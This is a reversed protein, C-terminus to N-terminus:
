LQQGPEEDPFLLIEEEGLQLLIQGVAGAPDPEWDAFRRLERAGYLIQPALEDTARRFEAEIEAAADSFAALAAAKAARPDAESLETQLLAAEREATELAREREEVAAIFDALDSFLARVAGDYDTREDVVVRLEAAAGGADEAALRENFLTELERTQEVAPNACGSLLALLVFSPPLRRM